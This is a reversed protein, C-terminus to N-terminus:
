GRGNAMLRNAMEAPEGRVLFENWAEVKTFDDIM